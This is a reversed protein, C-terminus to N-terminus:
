LNAQIDNYNRVRIAGKKEFKEPWTISKNQFCSDLIFLKRKQQLAARAQILTGSTNSAEVIVTADSIASMTINREPFFLRNMRYDQEAYRIFPIQSILLHSRGITDQLNRNEKPYYASLPTGIVGITRGGLDITTQHAVTDVGEALGSVITYGNKVFFRVLKATRRKGEESVKRAGVISIARTNLLDLDGLYYFLRLPYQADNLKSPYDMTGQMAIGMYERINEPVIEQMRMKMAKIYAIDVLDSPFAGGYEAFSLAIKKFSTRQITWLYEYALMEQFPSVSYEFQNRTKSYQLRLM